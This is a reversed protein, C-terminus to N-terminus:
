DAQGTKGQTDIPAEQRGATSLRLLAEAQSAPFHYRMAIDERALILEADSRRVHFTLPAAGDGFYVTVSDRGAEPSAATIRLAQAQQWAEVLGAVAEADARQSAGRLSWQGGTDRQLTFRPLEFKVPERGRPLLSLSIFDAVDSRLHRYFHDAILHITGAVAVYRRNNLPERSGFRLTVDDNLTLVARPEDLQFEGLDRDAAAFRSISRTKIIGLLSTVRFRNAPMEIPASLGWGEDKKELTLDQKDPRSLHLREVDDPQLSTLPLPAEQDRGGPLLYAILALVVVGALLFWNLAGRSLM